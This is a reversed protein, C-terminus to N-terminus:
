RGDSKMSMECLNCEFERSTEHKYYIKVIERDFKFIEFETISYYSRFECRTVKPPTANNNNAMWVEIGVCVPIRSVSWLKMGNMSLVSCFWSNEDVKKGIESWITFLTEFLSTIFLYTGYIYKLWVIKEWRSKRIVPVNRGGPRIPPEFGFTAVGATTELISCYLRSFGVMNAHSIRSLSIESPLHLKQLCYVTNYQDISHDIRHSYNSISNCINWQSFNTHARHLLKHVQDRHWSIGRSSSVCVRESRM